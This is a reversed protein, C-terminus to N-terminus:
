TAQQAHLRILDPLPPIANKASLRDNLYEWFPIGHKRCTKKLSVFTDRCRRGLDSRTSGSIKRRKVYERIDRESENNHLPLDPRALVLLLEPKNNHIRKLTKNLTVFCTKDTFIEDFRAKLKKKKTQGPAQKYKKLQDYFQWIEGRKKELAKRQDDNFGVLKNVSREAHIWCLAHLFVNFQGADDSVIALDRNFGHELISGVLAGETAIRVHWDSKIKLTDLNKKWAPENEFVHGRRPKLKKLTAKPLKQLEMYDLAEDNIVYDSRGARLLELFNIRSKSDTSQFWAFMRNGIHTCYGNRGQHRAGTDDVHIHRSVELGVSLIQEKEKEFLANGETIIQNVKGASIEIGIEKLMELILPQTVHAHYYQYLVFSQLKLGFHDSVGPPLKGTLYGGQPTQWREIRYLTNFPEIVLDQVTYDDYGKFRSGEPIHDPRIVETRHIELKKTKKRKRSGPRKRKKKKAGREASGPEMQSPKIQPRPKQGKLRAIEDKLQQVEEQLLAIIELLEVVLPTREAEPIEPIRAM